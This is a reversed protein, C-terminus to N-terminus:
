PKLLALNEVQYNRVLVYEYKNRRKLQSKNSIPRNPARGVRRTGLPPNRFPDIQSYSAGPVLNYQPKHRSACYMSEHRVSWVTSRTIYVQMRDVYQALLRHSRAACWVPKAGHVHELRCDVTTRRTRTPLGGHDQTRDLYVPLLPSSRAASRVPKPSKSM